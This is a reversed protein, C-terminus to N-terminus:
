FRNQISIQLVLSERSAPTASGLLLRIGWDGKKQEIGTAVGQFVSYGAPHEPVGIWGVDWLAVLQQLENIRYHLGQRFYIVKSSTMFGRRYGSLEEGGMPMWELYQQKEKESLGIGQMAANFRWQWTWASFLRFYKQVSQTFRMSNSVEKHNRLELNTKTKWGNTPFVLHDFTNFTLELVSFVVSHPKFVSDEANHLLGSKESGVSWKWKSYQGVEKFGGLEGRDVYRENREMSAKGFIGIDTKWVWPWDLHLLLDYNSDQGLYWINLQIGRHALHALTMWFYGQLGMQTWQLAGEVSNNKKERMGLWPYLINRHTDRRWQAQGQMTFLDSREINQNIQTLVSDTPAIGLPMKSTKQLFWPPTNLATDTKIEGLFWRAGQEINLYLTCTTQCITKYSIKGFIFGNQQLAQGTKQIADAIETTDSIHAWYQSTQQNQWGSIVVDMPKACVLLFSFWVIVIARITIVGLKIGTIRKL